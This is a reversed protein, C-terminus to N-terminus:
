LEAMAGPRVQEVFESVEKWLQKGVCEGQKTECWSSCKKVRGGSLFQGHSTEDGEKGVAGVVLARAGIDGDRGILKLAMRSGANGSEHFLDTRCYGPCVCNVFVLDKGTSKSSNTIMGALQRELLQVIGKSLYYREGTIKDNWQSEESLWKM